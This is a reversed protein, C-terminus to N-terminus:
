RAAYISPKMSDLKESIAKAIMCNMEASYHVYDVYLNKNVGHQLGGLWLRPLSTDSQLARMQEYGAAFFPDALVPDGNFVHYSLDYDYQPIPQIVFLAKIGYLQAMANEIQCNSKYREIVQGIEGTHPTPKKEFYVNNKQHVIKYYLITLPLKSLMTATFSQTGKVDESLKMSGLLRRIDGAFLPDDGHISLENLGDLFIALVPKNKNALSRKFAILEQNSFYGGAGFNYVCYAPNKEKMMRSLCAAITNSDAVGYGFTTSGGFLLVPIVTSDIIDPQGPSNYRYGHESVNVYRGHYPAEKYGQYPDYIFGRTHTENLQSDIEDATYGPYVKQYNAKTYIASLKNEGSGTCALIILCVINILLFLILSNFFILAISKYWRSIM